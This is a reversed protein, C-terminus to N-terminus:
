SPTLTDHTAGSALREALEGVPDRLRVLPRPDIENAGRVPWPMAAELARRVSLALREAQEAQAETPLASRYSAEVALETLEGFAPHLAPLDRQVRTAYEYLTEADFPEQGQSELLDVSRAWALTIRRRTDSGVRAAHRNQRWRKLAPVGLGWALLAGLLLLANRVANSGSEAEAPELEVQEEELAQAASSAAPIPTPTPEADLPFAGSGDDLVGQSDQTGESGTTSNDQQEPLGTYETANPAGRGPTPEFAVWGAGDIFVEPWAHAHKGRVLLRGPNAPDADGPTFGTAVRAPLGISRAMSAYTGAFQECYGAQVTLFDELREIDHGKAVDIDYTFNDQFYDQLALAKDYATTLGATVDLATQRALPSYDNPLDLYRPNAAPNVDGLRRLFEPSFRPIASTVSYQLGDSVSQDNTNVIFTASEAEYNVGSGSLNEFDTPLYSAPAWVVNLNGLDFTSTVLDVPADTPYEVPLDDNASRFQGESRWLSGDFVDLAAIRWYSRQNSDVTFLVRDSQDVLRPQIQVLPSIVELPRSNERSEGGIEVLPAENAGPVAPGGLVGAGAAIVAVVGGAAMLSMYGRAPGHDLWVGHAARSAARHSLLFLVGAILTTATTSLRQEPIGLIAVFVLMAVFPILAQAPALLRFAAWDAMTAILWLALSTIILFGTVAPVPTQTSSFLEQATELDAQVQLLTDATPVIAAIASDAYHIAVVAATTAIFSVLSSSATGFGFWRMAILVGHGVILTFMLPAIFSTEAFVRQLMMVSAISTAVLLIESALWVWRLDQNQTNMPGRDQDM